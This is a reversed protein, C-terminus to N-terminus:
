LVIRNIINLSNTTKIGVIVFFPMYIYETFAYKCKQLNVANPTHTYVTFIDDKIKQMSVLLIATVALMQVPLVPRSM